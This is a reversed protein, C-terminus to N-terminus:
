GEVIEYQSVVGEVAARVQVHFRPGEEIHVGLRHAIRVEARLIYEQVVIFEEIEVRTAQHERDVVHVIEIAGLIEAHLIVVILIGDTILNEKM